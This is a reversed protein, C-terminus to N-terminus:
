RQAFAGEVKEAKGSQMSRLVAEITLIQNVADDVGFRLKTKGMVVNSFEEFQNAYHNTAPLEEPKGNIVVIAKEDPQWAKPLYITGKEGVIELDTRYPLSFSSEVVAMGQAFELVGAMSMEIGRQKDFIGHASVAVPEAGYYFRAASIPYCGVDFVSGGGLAADFRVNDPNDLIFSFAGRILRVTGIAGDVIARKVRVHQPHYRWMFAESVNVQAKKAAAAISIAEGSQCTFPKECLVHKGKEIAKLTWEGHLGNPLVIHVAEIDADDLMEEYSGYARPLNFKSAFDQAKALQRSAVGLLEVSPTQLM